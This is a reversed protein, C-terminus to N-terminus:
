ALFMSFDHHGQMFPVDEIIEKESPTPADREKLSMGYEKTHKGDFEFGEEIKLM